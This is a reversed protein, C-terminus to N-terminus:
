MQGGLFERAVRGAQLTRLMAAGFDLRLAVSPHRHVRVVHSLDHAQFGSLPDLGGRVGHHRGHVLPQKASPLAVTHGVVGRM